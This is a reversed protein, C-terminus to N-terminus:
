PRPTRQVLMIAAQRRRRWMAALLALLAFILPMLVINIFKLRNGLRSIDQDLGLRVNRLDKRIRLKEHEFREIEQQQEPTLIMGSQDDRQTQLATLKQETSSLQAELEQEKTRLRGEAERRLADVREFPRAYSARGRVSILDNSGALNDLANWVLDGNHAWAQKARPGFFSGPVERLWLYDALLDSDAFVILNFPKASQKLPGPGNPFASKLDGTVRAALTYREGTPKFGDQLSAPDLLMAFREVPLVGALKSSQLLPEFQTSAGKRPTLHGATAVNISGLGSTVVDHSDLSASDLGLIAIHRVPAEGARMAVSMGYDLDGVIERPNFDVGWAGLLTGLQSSRDAGAAAFPQDPNDTGADQEALPDVFVLLHGGRLAFQDIAQQAPLPLTKPHVIALVDVDPEIQTLDPALDRLDFLEKAQQYVYWPERSRGSAPDYGGSMPLSSLWGVVPKHTRGLQYILKAVDYELFPEKAPDFFPIAERGDTSNTGALGFYFNEGAGGVPVGHVGLEAARDEDESFPEPDVISLRLKGKSRTALEQLFERVRTGYTKLAPYEGATKESWFYYLNVPEALKDLIRQTGPAVTYLRNETLDLRWGRLAWSALVVIGIFLVALALLTGRGLLLRHKM